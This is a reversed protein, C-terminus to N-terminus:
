RARQLRRNAVEARDEDRPQSQRLRLPQSFRAAYGHCRVLGEFRDAARRRQLDEQDGFALWIGPHYTAHDLPDEGKVPPHNRTVQVGGPARVNAFYPRSISKDEFVYTALTKSDVWVRVKDPEEAFAVDDPEGAASMAGGLSTALLVVAWGMRKLPTRCM